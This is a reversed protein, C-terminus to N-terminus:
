TGIRQDVFWLAIFQYYRFPFLKSSLFDEGEKMGQAELKKEEAKAEAKFLIMGIKEVIPDLAGTTYAAGLAVAVLAMVISVILGTSVM